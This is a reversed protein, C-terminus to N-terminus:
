YAPVNTPQLNEGKNQHIEESFCYSQASFTWFFSRYVSRSKLFPGKKHLAADVRGVAALRCISYRESGVRLAVVWGIKNESWNSATKSRTESGRLAAIQCKLFLPNEPKQPQNKPDLCIQQQLKFARKISKFRRNRNPVSLSSILLVGKSLIVGNKHYSM